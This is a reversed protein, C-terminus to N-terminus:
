LKVPWRVVLMVFDWICTVSSFCQMFPICFLSQLFGRCCVIMWNELQFHWMSYYQFYNKVRNDDLISWLLKSSTKGNGCVAFIRGVSFDVNLAVELVAWFPYFLVYIKYSKLIGAILLVRPLLNIEQQKYLRCAMYSSKENLWHMILVQHRYLSVIVAVPVFNYCNCHRSSLGFRQFLLAM